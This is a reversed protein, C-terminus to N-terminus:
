AFNRGTNFKAIEGMEHGVINALGSVPALTLASCIPPADKTSPLKLLDM